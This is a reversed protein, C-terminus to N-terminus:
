SHTTTGLPRPRARALVELLTDMERQDRLYYPAASRVSRGIRASVLAGPEDLVFVDEDTVDDGVYIAVDAREKERLALLADGKNPAREPVLNVVLKGAVLRMRDPLAEVAERIAARAERKGRAHRYHIAVSYRKDEVEVGRVGGLSAELAPRVRAVIREFAKMDGGPELGHNGVVHRVPAEGLRATVDARARGSIVAVPYAAAVRAFLRATSARMRAGERDSVIPALTGDFDFALLVHTSALQALLERGDRSLLHRM